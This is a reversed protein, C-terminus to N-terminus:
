QYITIEMGLRLYFWHPITLMIVDDIKIHESWGGKYDIIIMSHPLDGLIVDDNALAMKAM